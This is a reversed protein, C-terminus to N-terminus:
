RPSRGPARPARRPSRRPRPAPADEWTLTTGSGSTALIKGTVAALGDRAVRRAVTAADETSGLVGTVTWAGGRRVVVRQGGGVDTLDGTDVKEVAQLLVTTSGLVVAVPPLPTGDPGLAPAAGVLEVDAPLLSSPAQGALVVAITRM